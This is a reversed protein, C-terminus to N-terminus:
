AAEAEEITVLLLCGDASAVVDGHHATADAHHFDGTSLSLGGIHCSGRVVYSNEGGEHDHAPLVAHPDLDLLFTVRRGEKTLKKTRAGPALVFWKGEDARVTRSEHPGPVNRIGQMVRDRVSAPPVVPELSEAALQDLLQLDEPPFAHSM